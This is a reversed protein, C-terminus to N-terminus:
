SQLCMLYPLGLNPWLYLWDLTLVLPAPLCAVPSDGAKWFDESKKEPNKRERERTSEGAKDQARELSCDPPLVVRKNGEGLDLHACKICTCVWLAVCNHPPCLVVLSIHDTWSQDCPKHFFFGSQSVRCLTLYNRLDQDWDAQQLKVEM